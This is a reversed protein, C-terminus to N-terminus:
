PIAFQPIGVAGALFLFLIYIMKKNEEKRAITYFIEEWMENM